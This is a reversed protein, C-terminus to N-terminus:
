ALHLLEILHGVIIRKLIQDLHSSSKIRRYQHQIFKDALQYDGIEEIAQVLINLSFDSKLEIDILRRAGDLALMQANFTLYYALQLSYLDEETVSAKRLADDYQRINSDFRALALRYGLKNTEISNPDANLLFSFYFSAELIHGEDFLSRVYARVAKPNRKYERFYKEEDDM